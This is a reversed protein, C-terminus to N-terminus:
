NNITLIPIKSANALSESISNTFIRLVHDESRSIVAILGRKTNEAFHVLSEEIKDSHIFHASCAKFGHKQKFHFVKNNLEVPDLEEPKVYVLSLESDLCSSIEQIIRFTGPKYDSDFDVAVM